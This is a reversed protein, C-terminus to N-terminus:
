RMVRYVESSKIHREDEKVIGGRRRVSIKPVAVFISVAAMSHGAFTVAIEKM